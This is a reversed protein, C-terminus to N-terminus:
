GTSGDTIKFSTKIPHPPHMDWVLIWGSSTSTIISQGDNSFDASIPYGYKKYEQNKFDIEFM